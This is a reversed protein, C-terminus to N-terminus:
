PYLMTNSGLFQPYSVFQDRGLVVPHPPQGPRDVAVVQIPHSGQSDFLGTEARDWVLLHPRSVASSFHAWGSSGVSASFVPYATGAILPLAVLTLAEGEIADEQTSAGFVLLRGSPDWQPRSRVTLGNMSGDFLEPQPGATLLDPPSESGTFWRVLDPRDGAADQCVCALNPALNPDEPLIPQWVPWFCETDPAEGLRWGAEPGEALPFVLVSRLGTTPDTITLALHNGDPSLRPDSAGIEVGDTLHVLEDTNPDFRYVDFSGSDPDSVELLIRDSSRELGAFRVDLGPDFSPLLLEADPILTPVLSVVGRKENEGVQQELILFGGFWTFHVGDLGPLLPGETFLQQALDLIYPRGSGANPGESRGNALLAVLSGTRDPVPFSTGDAFLELDEAGVRPMASTLSSTLNSISFGEADIIDPGAEKLRNSDGSDVAQALYLDSTLTEPDTGVFLIMQGRSEPVEPDALDRASLESDACGLVGLTLGLLLAALGFRPLSM